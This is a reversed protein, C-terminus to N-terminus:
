AIKGDSVTPLPDSVPTQQPRTLAFILAAALTNFGAVTTDPINVGYGIALAAAATILYTFMSPAWPRVRWAVILGVVADIAAVWLPMHQETFGVWGFTVVISLAAVVVAGWAAPERSVGINRARGPYPDTM